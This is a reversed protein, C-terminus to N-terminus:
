PMFSQSQTIYDLVPFGRHLSVIYACPSTVDFYLNLFITIKNQQFSRNLIKLCKETVKLISM